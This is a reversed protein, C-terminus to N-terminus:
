NDGYMDEYDDMIKNYKEEDYDDSEDYDDESEEDYDDSEDYDGESEEEDENDEDHNDEEDEDEELDESEEYDDEDEEYPADENDHDLDSLDEKKTFDAGDKDFEDLSQNVKLDWMGDGLYVFTSSTTIDVYLGTKSDLDNLGKLEMVEDILDNINTPANKERLLEVAVEILSLNSVNEM